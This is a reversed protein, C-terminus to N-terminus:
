CTQANLSLPKLDPVSHSEAVAALFELANLGGGGKVEAELFLHHRSKLSHSKARAIKRAPLEEEENLAVLAPISRAREETQSILSQLSGKGGEAKTGSKCSPPLVLPPLTL